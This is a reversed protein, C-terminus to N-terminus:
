LVRSVGGLQSITARDDLIGAVVLAVAILVGLGVASLIVIQRGSGDPIARFLGSIAVVGGVLMPVVAAGLLLPDLRDTSGVACSLLSLLSAAIATTFAVYFPSEPQNPRTAFCIATLAVIVGLDSALILGDRAGFSFQGFSTPAASAILVILGSLALFRPTSARAGDPEGEDGRVIALSVAAGLVVGGVCWWGFSKPTTLFGSQKATLVSVTSRVAGILRGGIYIASALGILGTYIGAPLRSIVLSALVGIIAGGILLGLVYQFVVL